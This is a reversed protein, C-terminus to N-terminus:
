NYPYPLLGIHYLYNTLCDHGSFLRSKAVAVSRPWDPKNAILDKLIKRLIRIVLREDDQFIRRITTRIGM